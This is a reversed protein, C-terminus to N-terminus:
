VVPRDGSNGFDSPLAHDPISGGYLLVAPCNLWACGRHCDGYSAAINPLASATIVATGPNVGTIPVSTSTGNAAFTATAPVTAVSTNNSSLNVTLGGAPAQTSLTLALSATATGTISVTNPSFAITANIVQVSQTASLDGYITATIIASGNAVATVQPTAAPLTNGQNIFFSSPSVSVM